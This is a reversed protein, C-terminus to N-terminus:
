DDHRRYRYTVRVPQDARRNGYVDRQDHGEWRRVLAIWRDRFSRQRKYREVVKLVDKARTAGHQALLWRADDPTRAIGAQILVRENLTGRDIRHPSVLRGGHNLHLREKPYLSRLVNRIFKFM